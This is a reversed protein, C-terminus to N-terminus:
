VCTDITMGYYLEPDFPIQDQLPTQFNAWDTHRFDPRDPAHQFSLRCTTDVLLPLHDSSLASCSTLYMPSTLNTTMVIDLIDPTALSNYPKITPTDPALILCSNGDSYDRLFKERGTGLRSIWDVHKANLDSAMLVPMGGGFCASRDVGIQLRSPSFYAALIKVPKGAM